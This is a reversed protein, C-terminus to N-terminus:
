NPTRCARLSHATVAEANPVDARVALGAVIVNVSEGTLSPGIIGHRDIRRLLRGGGPATDQGDAAAAQDLIHLWDRCVIVPDTLPHSGRPIAVIQGASNKDTKSTGIRVELGDRVERVDARTLAVLESRRGMLALGLVLLLRDRLGTVTGLDCVEIMARLDPITLPPAQRRGNGATARRRKHARLALRAAETDPQGRHGSLRHMTRIASIAQEISAPAQDLACLAATYEALTHSTAPLPLRGQDACWATFAAWQRTYARQTNAPVGEAILARAADS